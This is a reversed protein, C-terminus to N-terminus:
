VNALTKAALEELGFYAQRGGEPNMWVKSAMACLESYQCQVGLVM